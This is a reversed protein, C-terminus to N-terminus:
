GRPIVYGPFETSPGCIQLCWGSPSFDCSGWGQPLNKTHVGSHQPLLARLCIYVWFIPWLRTPWFFGCIQAITGDEPFLVSKELLWGPSKCSGSVWFAAVLPLLYLPVPLGMCLRIFDWIIFVDELLIGLWFAILLSKLPTKWKLHSLLLVFSFSCPFDLCCAMLICFLQKPSVCYAVLFSLCNLSIKPSFFVIFILIKKQLSLFWLFPGVQSEPALSRLLIFHFIYYFPMQLLTSCVFSLILWSSSLFKPIFWNSSFLPFLIFLTSSLRCSRHSKM